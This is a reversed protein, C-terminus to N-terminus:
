EAVWVGFAAPSRGLKFRALQRGIRWGLPGRSPIFRGQLGLRAAAEGLGVFTLFGQGSQVVSPIGHALQFHRLQDAVMARGDQEDAFMPSDMVVLSGGSALMRAAEALSSAPDAAYHLAGDFVVLDFQSPEFPLRDFDAQVAVFPTGYHRCAGLGDAEDDLRDVAVVFHGDSALRHSLWGNGAGLDLIRIPGQWVGPMAHRQLHAFSERRIRWEAAHPDDAPVSPLKRYYDATNQRYGERERVVRYQREFPAAAAARDRSLFHYIGNSAAFVVGCAACVFGNV